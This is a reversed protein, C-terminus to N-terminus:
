TPVYEVSCNFGEWFLHIISSKNLSRRHSGTAETWQRCEKGLRMEGESKGSHRLLSGRKQSLDTEEKDQDKMRDGESSNRRNEM